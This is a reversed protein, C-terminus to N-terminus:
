KVRPKDDVIKKVEKYIELVEEKHKFNMKRITSVIVEVKQQLRADAKISRKVDKQNEMARTVDFCSRFLTKIKDNLYRENVKFPDTIKIIKCPTKYARGKAITVGLKKRYSKENKGIESIGFLITENVVVAVVCSAYHPKSKLGSRTNLFHKIATLGQISAIATEIEKSNFVKGVNEVKIPNKASAKKIKAERAKELPSKTVKKTEIM